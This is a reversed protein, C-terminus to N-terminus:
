ITQWHDGMGVSKIFMLEAAADNSLFDDVDDSSASSQIEGDVIKVMYEDDTYGGAKNKAGIYFYVLMKNEDEEDPYIKCDYILMSSPDLLKSQVEEVSMSIFRDQKSMFAGSTILLLILTTVCVIAGAILFINRKKNKFTYDCNILCFGCNSCVNEDSTTPHGCEPCVKQSVVTQCQPCKIAKDSVDHGCNECKVLAM